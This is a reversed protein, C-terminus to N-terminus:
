VDNELRYIFRYEGSKARKYQPFGSLQVSPISAPDLALKDIKGVIQKAHKLPISKLFDEARKSLRIKLM